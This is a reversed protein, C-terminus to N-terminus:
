AERADPALAHCAAGSRPTNRPVRHSNGCANCRVLSTSCFMRVHEPVLGWAGVAAENKGGIPLREVVGHAVLLEFVKRYFDAPEPRLAVMKGLMADFWSGYWSGSSEPTAIKSGRSPCMRPSCLSRRRQRTIQCPIKAAASGKSSRSGSPRGRYSMRTVPTAVAGQSRMHDLMGLLFLRFDGLKVGRWDM